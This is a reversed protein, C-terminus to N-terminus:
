AMWGGGSGSEYERRRPNPKTMMRDLGSVILYRTADMIHDDKKVIKGNGKDDRHYGRFENLWNLLSSFVKLRGGIMLDWVDQIGSEVANVAIMLDLGAETYMQMLNRGDSQQSGLCAPDIVGPIWNGRAKIADAHNAPTGQGEYHESYLFIVGTEPNRAGWICATRNWGVDLGYARPWSDPISFPAVVIAREEIPYIAGAGLSPTGKTRAEIQYGPTTAILSRKEEEDIHPVDDWGAQIFWKYQKSEPKEPRVFSKVVDSMGQLPTFTTYIIGRVTPTRFLMESYCDLPPEEDCWIVHKATGEFSSRGQAYTKLGLQSYGGSKHHVWVTDLANAVGQRTTPKTALAEWPLMGTGIANIEGFLELQVIDRTTETTSGCAWAKIPHEFRRGEWWAPYQGTLHLATEYAGATSKGVRNAAMFLREKFAAGASFFELHKEYLERRVPGEDPFFRDIKRRLRRLKEAEIEELNPLKVFLDALPEYNTM